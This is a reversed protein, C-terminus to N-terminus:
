IRNARPFLQDDMSELHIPALFTPIFFSLIAVFFCAWLLGLSLYFLSFSGALIYGCIQSGFSKHFLFM